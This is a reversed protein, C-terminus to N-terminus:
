RKRIPPVIVQLIEAMNPNLVRGDFKGFRDKGYYKETRKTDLVRVEKGSKTKMIHLRGVVGMYGCVKDTLAGRQGYIAPKYTIEGDSQDEIRMVHATLGFHIRPMSRMVRIGKAFQNQTKQHEPMSPIDPDRNPNSKVVERLRNDMLTEQFLTGSDLWFM